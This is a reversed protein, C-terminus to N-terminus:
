LLFLLAAVAGIGGVTAVTRITKGRGISEACTVAKEMVNIEGKSIEFTASLNGAAIFELLRERLRVLVPFPGSSLERLCETKAAETAAEESTLPELVVDLVNLLEQAEDFTLRTKGRPEPTKRERTEPAQPEPTSPFGQPPQGPIVELPMTQGMRLTVPFSTWKGSEFTNPGSFINRM